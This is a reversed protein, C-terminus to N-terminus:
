RRARMHDLVSLRGGDARMKGALIQDRVFFPDLGTQRARQMIHAALLELKPAGIASEVGTARSGAGWVIAQGPVAEIGMPATVKDRWWDRVPLYEATRMSAGPDASRRADSIGVLRTFHADPVPSNTQFGLEPPRSAQMYLPVKPSKMDVDGTELYSRMPGAQSTSHYPHGPVGALEPGYALLYNDGEKAARALLKAKEPEPLGGYRDFLDFAGERSFYNAAAGRKFETLVDSGPSAMTTYTNFREYLRGGEEPGYLEVLRKYAPDMVYWSHMGKYLEPHRQAEALIDQMRQTNRPTTVAEGVESGRPRSPEAIVGPRNGARKSMEYLDDRTVGFLMRLAADEPAVAEAAEAAMSRPSEWIKPYPSGEPNANLIPRKAMSFGRSAREAAPLTSKGVSGVFNFADAVDSSGAELGAKYASRFDRPAARYADSVRRMKELVSEGPVGLVGALGKFEGTQPDYARRAAQELGYDDQTRSLERIVNGVVGGDARRVSGGNKLGVSGSEAGGGWGEGPGEGPGAAGQQGGGWIGLDERSQQIAERVDNPVGPTNAADAALQDATLGVAARGAENRAAENIGTGLAGFTVGHVVGSLFDKLGLKGSDWGTVASNAALADNARSLDLATGFGTGLVGLGPIGSAFGALSGLAGFATGAGISSTGRGGPVGEKAPDASTDPGHGGTIIGYPDIPNNSLDEGIGRGLEGVRGGTARHIPKKTDGNKLWLKFKDASMNTVHKRRRPGSGDSFSADYAKVAAARSNFGLMVKHEDFKGTKPDFQDIVTVLQSQPTPGMHIDVHDGDKGETRKIYGYDHPMRVSWPKGDPDVGSRTSGRPNEIALGLGNWRRHEKKYNGASKQAETPETNVRGGDKFQRQGKKVAEIMKPTIEFSPFNVEGKKFNKHVREQEFLSLNHWWDYIQDDPIGLSEGISRRGASQGLEERSRGTTGIKAQPDIEKIAAQVRNRILINDYYDIMGHGGVHLDKGEIMHVPPSEGAAQGFLNEVPKAEKSLLREATEKGIQAKLDKKPVHTNLPMPDGKPWFYLMESEPHYAIRDVYQAQNWRAAQMVGPTFMVKDYGGEVAERILTRVMLDVWDNTKDVYPAKPHKGIPSLIQEKTLRLLNQLEPSDSAVFRDPSLFKDLELVRSADKRGSFRSVADDIRRFSKAADSFLARRVDAPASPDIRESMYQRVREEYAKKADNYAAEREAKVKPDYFGERRGRQGYDSQVEEVHLIKKDLGKEGYYKSAMMNMENSWAAAEQPTIVGRRVAVEPAGHGLYNVPVGVADAIRRGIDELVEPAVREFRDTTRAFGLVDKHEPFHIRESFAPGASKTLYEKIEGQAQAIKQYLDEHFEEQKRLDRAKRALDADPASDLKREIAYAEGGLDFSKKWHFEAESDLKSLRDRLEKYEEPPLNSPREYQVIIERYNEGGPLTYKQHRASNSGLIDTKLEPLREQFFQSVEDRTVTPREAFAADWGAHEFESKKVGAKELLARFQQPTGTAQPLNAAAEAGHSYFGLPSLQREYAAVAREAAKAGQKAAGGGPIADLVGAGMTAVAPALGSLNGQEVAETLEKSGQIIDQPRPIMGELFAGIERRPQPPLLGGVAGLAANIPKNVAAAAPALYEEYVRQGFPQAQPAEAEKKAFPALVTGEFAPVSPEDDGEARGGNARRKMKDLVSGGMSYRKKMDILNEDFVVYNHTGFGRSRSGQDLYKIGPVGSKVLYQSLRSPTGGPMKEPVGLETLKKSYMVGGARRAIEDYLDEGKFIEGYKNKEPFGAPFFPAAAKLVKPDQQSLPKDWQLFHDPNANIRVEYTYPPIAKGSKIMNAAKEYEEALLRSGEEVEPGNAYKGPIAFDLHYDRSKLLREAAKEKDFKSALLAFAATREPGSKMRNLFDRWYQGGQGSVGPNEAFYLGPGYSQNGEGTGMKSMDFREFEHPSSHYASIGPDKSAILINGRREVRPFVQEIEDVYFQAPQNNQWGKTTEAARRSRDGEYISFYAKGDPLTHDYAKQIVDLRHEAEPIVNLVNAVTATNAPNEAYEALVRQNHEAPRNFPDYVESKVGRERALYETGLDYAGGGIDINRHGPKVQFLESKHLAPVQKLSTAASTVSQAGLKAPRGGPIMDLAGAGMTAIAPAVANIDGSGAAHALEKSGQIVDQPRPILGKALAGIEKRPQPPLLSGVAEIARNIPRNVAAAAPELYEEYVKQGFPREDEVEGGEARRKMKNLVSGGSAYSPVAYYRNGYKIVHRGLEKEAAVAKDWTPHNRGKLMLYSPGGFGLRRSTEEDVEAVSGWHGENEGKGDPGMGRSIATQYDYGEGEADFPREDNVAGGDARGRKSQWQIGEDEAPKAEKLDSVDVGMKAAAQLMEARSVLVAANETAVGLSGAANEVARNYANIRDALIPMQEEIQRANKRNRYRSLISSVGKSAMVGAVDGAGPSIAHGIGAGIMHSLNSEIRELLPQVFAATNSTNAATRPLILNQRMDAYAQLLRRQEPTYLAEAMERGQGNLFENVRNVVQQNSMESMGAPRETLRAFHGQRIADMVRPDDSTITRIRNIVGVDTTNPNAGTRGFIYDAVDNAHAPDLPRNGERGTIKEIVRGVPDKSRFNSMYDAHRARANLFARVVREDGTFQGGTLAREVQNDFQRMVEGLARADQSVVGPGGAELASQRFRGLNQRVRELGDLTVGSIEGPVAGPRARDIIQLDGLATDIYDLAQSSLPTLQDVVIPNDREALGRRIEGPMSQVAEANVEAPFMRAREYAAATAGRMEASQRRLRNSVVQGADAPETTPIRGPEALAERVTEQAGAVQDRQQALFREAQRQATPGLQGTLAASERRLPALDPEPMNAARQGRSFLVGLEDVDPIRSLYRPPIRPARLTGTAIGLATEPYVAPIGTLKETPEGAFTHYAAGIPSGFWQLAGYGAQGLGALAEVPDAARGGGPAIKGLGEAVNRRAEHEAETLAQPYNTIPSVLGKAFGAIREATTPRNAPKSSKQTEWVVGEDEDAM